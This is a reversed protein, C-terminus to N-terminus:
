VGDTETRWDRFPRKDDIDAILGLKEAAEDLLRAARILVDSDPPQLQRESQEHGGLADTKESESVSDAYFSGDLSRLGDYVAETDLRNLVDAPIRSNPIKSLPVKVEGGDSEVSVLYETAPITEGDDTQVVLQQRAQIYADKDGKWYKSVIDKSRLLPRMAEFYDSVSMALQRHAEVTIQHGYPRSRRYRNRADLCSRHAEHIRRVPASSSRVSESM